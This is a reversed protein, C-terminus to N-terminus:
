FFSLTRWLVTFHKLKRQFHKLQKECIKWLPLFGKKYGASGVTNNFTVHVVSFSNLHLWWGRPWLKSVGRSATQVSSCFLFVCCYRERDPGNLWHLVSVSWPCGDMLRRTSHLCGRIYPNVKRGSTGFRVVVLQGEEVTLMRKSCSGTLASGAQNRLFCFVFVFVVGTRAEGTSVGHCVHLEM